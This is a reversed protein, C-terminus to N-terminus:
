KVLYHLLLALGNISIHLILSPFFSQLRQRIYAFVIGTWLLPLFALLDVHTASWLASSVIIFVWPTWGLRGLYGRFFTEEGLPALVLVLLLFPVIDQASQSFGFDPSFGFLWYALVYYLWQLPLIALLGFFVVFIGDRLGVRRGGIARWADGLTLGSLYVALLPCGVFLVETLIHLSVWAAPPLTTASAVLLAFLTLLTQYLLPIGVGIFILTYKQTPQKQISTDAM